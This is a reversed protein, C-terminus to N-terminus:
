MGEVSLVHRRCGKGMQMVTDKRLIRNHKEGNFTYVNFTKSSRLTPPPSSPTPLPYSHRRITSTPLPPPWPPHPITIPRVSSLPPQSTVPRPDPKYKHPTHNTGSHPPPPLYRKTHNALTACCKLKPQPLTSTSSPINSTPLIQKEPLIPSPTQLIPIYSRRINFNRFRILLCCLFIIILIVLLSPVDFLFSPYSSLPISTSLSVTETTPRHTRRYSQLLPAMICVPDQTLLLIHSGHFTSSRLCERTIYCCLSSQCTIGAMM